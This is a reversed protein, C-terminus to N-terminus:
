ETQETQMRDSSHWALRASGQVTRLKPVALRGCMQPSDPAQCVEPADACPAASRILLIERKFLDDTLCHGDASRGSLASRRSIPSLREAM